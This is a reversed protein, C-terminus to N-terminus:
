RKKYKFNTYIVPVNYCASHFEEVPNYIVEDCNSLTFSNINVILSQQVIIHKDSCFLLFVILKLSKPFQALM